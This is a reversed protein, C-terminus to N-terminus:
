FGRGSVSSLAAGFGEEWADAMSGNFPELYPNKPKEDGVGPIPRSASSMWQMYRAHGQRWALQRKPDDGARNHPVNSFIPYEIAV